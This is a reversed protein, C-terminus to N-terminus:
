RAVQWAERYDGIFTELSTAPAGTLRRITRNPLASLNSRVVRHIMKQVSLYEEDAGHLALDDLYESESPRSYRIPRGLVRSMARAVHEYGLSREGSLTYARGVHGDSTFVTAAVRGIDRADVFATRSRGAPVFIENSSRIRDAYNTALNQMFFNPRLFTFPAGARRLYVEVAHHPTARNFQVGQLSLFVIQRIRLRLAADILPFLYRQVDAIPPPRMLFLRDAGDLAAELAAPTSDFDFRRAQTGQPLRAVDTGRVGGLVPVGLELLHQAVSAGVTGTAGTVFVAPATM